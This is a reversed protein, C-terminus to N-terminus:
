PPGPHLAAGTQPERRSRGGYVIRGCGRLWIRSPRSPSTRLRAPSPGVRERLLLDAAPSGPRPPLGSALSAPPRKAGAAQRRRLVAPVPLGCLRSGRRRAVSPRQLSRSRGLCAGSGPSRGGDPGRSRGRRFRGTRHFVRYPLARRFAPLAGSRNRWDRCLCGVWSDIREEMPQFCFRRAGLIEGPHGANSKRAHGPFTLETVGRPRKTM